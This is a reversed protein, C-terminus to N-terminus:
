VKGEPSQACIEDVKFNWLQLLRPRFLEVHSYDLVILVDKYCQPM